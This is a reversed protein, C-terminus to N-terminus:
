WLAISRVTGLNTSHAFFFLGTGPGVATQKWGQSPIISSDGATYKM